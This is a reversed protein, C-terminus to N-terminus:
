LIHEIGHTAALTLLRRASGSPVRQGNEWYEVTSSTVGLVRAFIARSM